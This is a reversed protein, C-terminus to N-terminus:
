HARSGLLRELNARVAPDDRLALAARYDREARDAGDIEFAAANGRYVLARFDAHNREIRQDLDQVMRDFKWLDRDALLAPDFSFGAWRDVELWDESKGALEALEQAIFAESDFAVRPALIEMRVLREYLAAAVQLAGKPTFHVYDYFEDFGVIGHPAQRELEEIVDLVPVSASAGVRRVRDAMADLARRLHPDANFAARYDSRAAPFDGLAESALARRFLWEHREDPPAQALRHTLEERARRFKQQEPLADTEVLENMWAAPLDERGRWKWNSAVTLLLIPTDSERAAQAMEAINREYQDIIGGVEDDSMEIDRIIEHQTLRIQERTLSQEALSPREPRGRVARHVLRYLNTGMLRDRLWSALSGHAEAYKQAHIELFENNGAYVIVLDPEYSRCVEAVLLKEQKTALAVMGLNLMEVRAGPLAASAMRELYRAFTINRSYGLGATSSGGLTVLRITGVPKRRLITQYPFRPDVTRLVDIGNPLTGPELTPFYIQQYDLRSARSADLAGLGSVRLLAELIALLLLAFAVSGLLLTLNAALSSRSGQADM